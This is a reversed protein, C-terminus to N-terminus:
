CWIALLLYIWGGLAVAMGLVQVLEAYNSRIQRRRSAFLHFCVPEAFIIMLMGIFTVASGVGHKGLSKQHTQTIEAALHFLAQDEPCLELGPTQLQGGSIAGRVSRGDPFHLTWASDSIASIMIVKEASLDGVWLLYTDQGEELAFQSALLKLALKEGDPGVFIDNGESTETYRYSVGQWDIESVAPENGGMLMFMLLFIGMVIFLTRLM